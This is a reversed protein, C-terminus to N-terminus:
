SLTPPAFKPSTELMEADDILYPWFYFVALSRIKGYLGLLLAQEICKTPSRLQLPGRMLSGWRCQRTQRCQCMYAAMLRCSLFGRVSPVARDWRIISDTAIFSSTIERSLHSKCRWDVGLLKSVRFAFQGSLMCGEGMKSIFTRM